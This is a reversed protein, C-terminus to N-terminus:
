KQLALWEWNNQGYISFNKFHNFMPDRVISNLVTPIQPVLVRKMENKGSAAAAFQSIEPIPFISLNLLNGDVV